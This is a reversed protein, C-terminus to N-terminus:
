TRNGTTQLTKELAGLRAELECTEIARRKAELLATVNTAEDPSIDGKATQAIVGSLAESVDRATILSEPLEFKIPRDKRPPCIRDVVIRAAIMDGKLAKKIVANCVGEAQGDFLEEAIRTAHNRAGPPRGSPNGSVGKQFGQKRKTTDTMECYM